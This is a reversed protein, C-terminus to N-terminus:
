LYFLIDFLVKLSMNRSKYYIVIDFLFHYRQFTNNIGYSILFFITESLLMKFTQCWRMVYKYCWRMGHGNIKVHDINAVIYNPLPNTRTNPL